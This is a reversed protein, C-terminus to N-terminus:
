FYLFVEFIKRFRRLFIPFDRLFIPFNRLFLQWTFLSFEEFIKPFVEFYLLFEVSVPNQPIETKRVSIISVGWFVWNNLPKQLKKLCKWMSVNGHQPTEMAGSPPSMSYMSHLYLFREAIACVVHHLGFCPLSQINAPLEICYLFKFLHLKLGSYFSTYVVWEISPDWQTKVLYSRRIGRDICTAWILKDNLIM